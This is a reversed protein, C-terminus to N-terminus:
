KKWRAQAAKRAIETRRKASLKAARAPGGRRGGLRGLESAHPNKWLPVTASTPQMFAVVETPAHCMPCDPDTKPTQATLGEWECVPCRRYVFEGSILRILDEETLRRGTRVPQSRRPMRTLGAITM